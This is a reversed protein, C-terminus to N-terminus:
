YILSRHIPHSSHFVSETLLLLERNFRYGENKLSRFTENAHDDDSVDDLRNRVEHSEISELFRDYIEVLKETKQEGCIHQMRELAPIAFLEELIRRKDSASRDSTMAVSFIGGAYMLKRSFVLKINRIAWPKKGEKTKYRYDVTMTRWYRIIDNLLFLALQHDKVQDSVYKEIINRRTEKFVSENKLYEGELLLLIRRTLNDNDDGSGGINELLSNNDIVTGFSGTKSPEIRVFKKIEGAYINKVANTILERSSQVIIYDLDSEKSAEKRAYSGFTLVASTDPGISKLSTRIGDLKENSYAKARNFAPLVNM